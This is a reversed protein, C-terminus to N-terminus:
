NIDFRHQPVMIETAPDFGLNQEPGPKFELVRLTEPPPEVLSWSRFPEPMRPLVIPGPDGYFM